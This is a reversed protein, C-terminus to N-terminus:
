FVGQVHRVVRYYVGLKRSIKLVDGKDFGLWKVIPDKTSISPFSDISGFTTELELIENASCREHLPVYKSDTPDFCLFTDPVVVTDHPVNLDAACDRYSAIMQSPVVVINNFEDTLYANKFATIVDKKSFRRGMKGELVLHPYSLFSIGVVNESRAMVIWLFTVKWKEVTYHPQINTSGMWKMIDGLPVNVNRNRLMLASGRLMRTLKFIEETQHFTEADREEAVIVEAHEGNLRQKSEIANFYVEYAKRPLVLIDFAQLNLLLCKELTDKAVQNFRDEYEKYKMSSMNVNNGLLDPGLMRVRKGPFQKEWEEKVTDLVTSAARFDLIIFM